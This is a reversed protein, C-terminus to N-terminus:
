HDGDRATNATDAATRPALRVEIQHLIGSFAFPAQYRDCVALGHDRGISAGLSSIMGMFVPLDSRGCRVGDIAIELMGARRDIRRLHVSLTSGGEPVETASEVITHDSFANYDVVLRGHQVFMSVGASASGTAWLVGEDGPACTIRAELDFSRGGPSPTAQMAIPSM